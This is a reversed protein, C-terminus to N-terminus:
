LTGTAKLLSYYQYLVNIQANAYHLEAELKANTADTMEAQIALQNLYKAEIIRYNEQALQQSKELLHANQIAEEYKTYSAHVGMEVQQMALVRTEEAKGKELQELKVKKPTKYLNDLSYSLTVGVQWTNSYMDMVPNSTTIPRSMNYGGMAVLAPYKDTKALAIKQDAASIAKETIKLTPHNEYALDLYDAYLGMLEKESIAESPSLKTKVDLGLAINLNYNVININNSVVLLAQEINQLALEGRIVENRTLMGQSYFQKVNELRIEGLKKNNQYVEQQNLLKYLDLYNSIVLFKISQQDNIWDLEAIQEGIKALEISKKIAGGKYLLESAQIAYSNGFHPMDITGVKSFDRDLLLADGIYAATASVGITPLQQLKLIQTQQNAIEKQQASLKLQQHHELALKIVEEVSLQKSKEQAYSWTTSLLVAVFGGLLTRWKSKM